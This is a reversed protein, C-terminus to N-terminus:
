NEGPGLVSPGQARYRKIVFVIGEQVDKRLRTELKWVGEINDRKKITCGCPLLFPNM